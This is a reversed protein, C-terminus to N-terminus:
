RLYEHKIEVSPETQITEKPLEYKPHGDHIFDASPMDNNVLLAVSKHGGFALVCQSHHAGTRAQSYGVQRPTM